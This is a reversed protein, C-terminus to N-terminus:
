VKEASAYRFILNAKSSSEISSFITRHKSEFIWIQFRSDQFRAELYVSIRISYLYISLRFPFQNVFLCERFKSADEVLRNECMQTRVTFHLCTPPAGISPPDFTSHKSIREDRLAKNKFPITVTVSYQVIIM